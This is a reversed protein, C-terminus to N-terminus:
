SVPLMVRRGHDLCGVFIVGSTKCVESVCICSSSLVVAMCSCFIKDVNFKENIVRVSNEKLWGSEKRLIEKSVHVHFVNEVNAMRKRQLHDQGRMMLDPPCEHNSASKLLRMDKLLCKAFHIHIGARRNGTFPLLSCQVMFRLFKQKNYPTTSATPGQAHPTNETTALQITM